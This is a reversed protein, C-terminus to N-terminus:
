PTKRRARGILWLGLLLLPASLIQGMTVPVWEQFFFGLHADPERFIEGIIRAMAYGIVFIGALQGPREYLRTRRLAMMLALLVLGELAAQYLQSPHRALGDSNPFVMGWPMDTVRGVLEGNVFNALRGLLFGVPAICAVDDALREWGVRHKRAILLIAVAAGIFGGHFAMGGRWVYFIELPNQLYYGPQYFLAYGLRGGVIVGLTAYTIVDDAFAASYPSNPQKSLRLLWGWAALIAAIYALAYWRVVLPGIQFAIPDIEPFQLGAM